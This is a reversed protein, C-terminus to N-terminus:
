SMLEKHVAYTRAVAAEWTFTEARARGANALQECLNEDVALRKLAEAIEETRYPNVLVAADGAVEPLASCNSTLVPVGNGMAELVPIGFGEDLSPFAFISARGYLEDLQETAVYGTHEIRERAPSAQIRRLIEAAGFGGAAGALILRWDHPLEEFAELLRVINKRVQLAGVFLVMKERASAVARNRVRVGHPIVRIRARPVDLLAEVQGATFESVAIILDSNAAARKAQETFRARFDASSYENTMVFLDHFTSVVQKSPRRDVRQNLAHFVQARINPFPPILLRKRVNRYKSQEAAFFQKVRYCHLFEDEPHVEALGDLLERSYVAIGSPHPDISYTADLAILV